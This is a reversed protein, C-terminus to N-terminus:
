RRALLLLRGALRRTVGCAATLPQAARRLRQMASFLLQHTSKPAADSLLRMGGAKLFDVSRSRGPPEPILGAKRLLHNVQYVRARQDIERACFNIGVSISVEPGNRVRHAALSPHHVARGPALEFRTARSQLDERYRAATGDGAYFQEIQEDPLLERDNPDYLWIEKHGAIQCLFNAEHDIHYPTVIHPSAMFVSLNALTAHIARGSLVEVDHIVGYVIEMYDPDVHGLDSLRIWSDSDPLQDFASLLKQKAGMEAFTAGSHYSGHNLKFNGELGAKLLREAANALRSISFLPSAALDHQLRFARVGFDERFQTRDVDTFVQLGEAGAPIAGNLTVTSM